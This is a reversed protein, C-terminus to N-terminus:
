IAMRFRTFGAPSPRDAGMIEAGLSPPLEIRIVDAGWDALVCGAAPGAIWVGLEIVRIGEMPGTM